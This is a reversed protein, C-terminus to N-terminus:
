FPKMMQPVARLNPPLGQQRREKNIIDEWDPLLKVLLFHKWGIMAQDSWVCQTLRDYDRAINYDSGASVSKIIHLILAYIQPGIGASM